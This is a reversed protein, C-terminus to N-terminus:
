HDGIRTRIAAPLAAHAALAFFGQQMRVRGAGRCTACATPGSGPKAGSGECTECAVSGPVRIEAKKGAFAERLTIDLNYRLDAGRGPGRAGRAGRAGMFEGFIDDFVDAFASASFGAGFGGAHGNMGGKFAAHGFRDYAARKQPDSLCEYAENIEKFKHEAAQDGGNRDPHYKMAGKRFAAKISADDADRGVGLVDYYCQQVM